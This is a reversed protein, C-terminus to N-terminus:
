LYHVVYIITDLQGLVNTCVLIAQLYNREIVTDGGFIELCGLVMFTLTNPDIVNSHVASPNPIISTVHCLTPHERGIVAVIVLMVDILSTM